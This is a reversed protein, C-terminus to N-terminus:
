GKSVPGSSAQLKKAKEAGIGALTNLAGLLAGEVVTMAAYDQNEYVTTNTCFPEGNKTIEVSIKTTYKDM